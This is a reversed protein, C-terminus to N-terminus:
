SLRARQVPCSCVTKKGYVTKYHCDRENLCKILPLDRDLFAETQCVSADTLCAFDLDCRTQQMIDLSIRSSPSM